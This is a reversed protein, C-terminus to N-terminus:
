EILLFAYRNMTQSYDTVVDIPFGYKRVTSCVDIAMGEPTPWASKPNKCEEKVGTCEECINCPSMPLLFGKHYGM